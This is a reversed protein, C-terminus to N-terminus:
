IKLQQIMKKRASSLMTRISRIPIGTIAVIEENEMGQQRMQMLRQESRPLHSIVQEIMQKQEEAMLHANTPEGGQLDCTNENLSASARLKQKRWKSVCLNKTAIIALSRVQENLDNRKMWLKMLVEQTTDEAEDKNHFFNFAVKYLVPRLERILNEFNETTM